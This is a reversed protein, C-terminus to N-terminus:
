TPDDEDDESVLYIFPLILLTVHLAALRALTNSSFSLMPTHGLDDHPHDPPVVMRVVISLTAGSLEPEVLRKLAESSSEFQDLVELAVDEAFPGTRTPTRWVWRSRVERLRGTPTREEAREIWSPPVGLQETVADPDFEGFVRLEGYHEFRRPM